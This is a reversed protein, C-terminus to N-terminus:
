GQAYPAEEKWRPGGQRGTYQPRSVLRLGDRYDVCHYLVAGDHCNLLRAAGVISPAFLNGQEDYVPVGIRPPRRPGRANTNGLMSCSRCRTGERLVPAPCNVCRYTM